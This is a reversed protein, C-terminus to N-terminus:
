LGVESISYPKSFIETAIQKVDELTVSMFKEMQEEISYVKDFVAVLSSIRSMRSSSTEFSMAFDAKISRKAIELEKETIGDELIKDIETKIVKIVTNVNESSTGFSIVSLGCDSCGMWGSDISYVLGLKERVEQFLRSSYSGGFVANLIALANRKEDCDPISDYAMAVTTQNFDKEIKSEVNPHFKPAERVFKSGGSRGTLGESVKKILYEHEIAGAAAVIINELKYNADWFNRIEERKISSVTDITGQVSKGMSSDKYCISILNDFCVSAPNDEHMKIEELIVQRETEIEEERFAPDSIIDTLLDLGADLDDKVIKVYYTTQEISTAANSIGGMVDLEQAIEFSSRKSTGKFLLHELFHSAGSIEYSEDRAGVEVRMAVTASLADPMKETVVRLGNDLKDYQIM